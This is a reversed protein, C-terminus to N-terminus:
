RFILGSLGVAAWCNANSRGNEAGFDTLRAVLNSGAQRRRNARTPQWHLLESDLGAIVNASFVIENSVQCM